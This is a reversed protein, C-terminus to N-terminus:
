QKNKMRQQYCNLGNSFEVMLRTATRDKYNQQLSRPRVVRARRDKWLQVPKWLSLTTKSSNAVVKKVLFRRLTRVVEKVGATEVLQSM